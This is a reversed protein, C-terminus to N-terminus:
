KTRGKKKNGKLEYQENFMQLTMSEWVRKGKLHRDVFLLIEYVGVVFHHIVAQGSGSTENYRKYLELGGFEERDLVRVEEGFFQRLSSNNVDDSYRSIENVDFGVLFNHMGSCRVHEGKEDVEEVVGTKGYFQQRNKCYVIHDGPVYKIEANVVEKNEIFEVIQEKKAVYDRMVQLAEKDGAEAKAKLEAFGLGGSIQELESMLRDFYIQQVETFNAKLSKEQFQQMERSM